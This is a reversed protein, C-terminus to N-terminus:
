LAACNTPASATVIPTFTISIVDGYNPAPTKASGGEKLTARLPLTGARGDMGARACTRTGFSTNSTVEQGLFRASYRITQASDSLNGGPYTLRFNNQSRMRVEFPGSSRVRLSNVASTTYRDPAALVASTTADGIEGFDLPSGAYYAQLASVTNVNIRIAGPERVPVPQGLLGLVGSCIYMLDLVIPEGSSLDTGPPVTVRLNLPTSLDSSLIGGFDFRIEGAAGAGNDRSDLARPRGATAGEPYIVRYGRYTVDIAPSGTPAVIIASVEDTLGLVLGRNRRLVLPITVESLGGPSFPDYTISAPATATGTVGCISAIQTQAQAPSAIALMGALGGITFAFTRARM